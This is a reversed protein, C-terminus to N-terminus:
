VNTKREIIVLIVFFYFIFFLTIPHDTPLAYEKLIPMTALYVFFYTSHFKLYKQIASLTIIINNSKKFFICLKTSSNQM